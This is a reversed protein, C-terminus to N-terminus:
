GEEATNVIETLPSWDGGDGLKPDYEVLRFGDEADYKGEGLSAFEQAPLDIEGYGNVAETWSENTLDPGAKEAIAKFMAMDTCADSVAIWVEARDGNADPKLDQPAVVKEGTADEFKKICPQLFKFEESASKGFATLIGDYANPTEGSNQEDQAAALASSPSDTLLQVGPIANAIKDVWTRSVISLGVMVVTDVDEDKWKELFSDLQTQGQSTDTDTLTIVATSGRDVDLEDLAPDVVDEVRRQSDDDSIVAVTKGDLTKEKEVLDMLVSLRREAAIQPTLLLGPPAEDIWAQELERGIHATENDRSLCLQADGSFDIFVGVVAFVEEDQTMTTCTKLAEANGIPCYTNYVPEIKRGLV